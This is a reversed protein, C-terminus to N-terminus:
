EHARWDGVESVWTMSKQGAGGVFDTSIRLRSQVGATPGDNIPATIWHCLGKDGLTRQGREGMTISDMIKMTCIFVVEGATLHLLM